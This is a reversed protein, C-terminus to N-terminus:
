PARWADELVPRIVGAMAEYAEETLHLSDPLYMGPWPEGAADALAANVDIFFRGASAACSARILANTSDVRGWRERKQPARNISVFYVRTAPLASDVRAAFRSFWGLIEEPGRGANIDNSGCYYVIIKPRYPLVVRDMSLYVEDTRSGGFARNLVPLPAMQEALRTWRRFISSGTFLIAGAPPPSASDGREYAEIQSRFRPGKTAAADQGGAVHFASAVALGLLLAARLAGRRVSIGYPADVHVDGPTHRGPAQLHLGRESLGLWRVARFLLGAATQTM